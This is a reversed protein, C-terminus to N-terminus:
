EGSFSRLARVLVLGGPGDIRLVHLLAPYLLLGIVTALEWPM